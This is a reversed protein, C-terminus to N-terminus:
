GNHRVFFASIFTMEDTAPLEKSDTFKKLAKTIAQAANNADFYDFLSCTFGQCKFRARVRYVKM